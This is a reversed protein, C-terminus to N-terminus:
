VFEVIRLAMCPQLVLGFLRFRRYAVGLTPAGSLRFNDLDFQEIRLAFHLFVKMLAVGQTDADVILGMFKDRRRGEPKGDIAVIAGVDIARIRNGGAGMNVSDISGTKDVVLNHLQWEIWTREFQRDGDVVSVRGHGDVVMVAHVGEVNHGVRDVVFITDDM